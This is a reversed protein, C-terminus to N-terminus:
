EEMPISRCVKQSDSLPKKTSQMKAINQFSSSPLNAKDQETGHKEVNSRALSKSWVTADLGECKEKKFIICSKKQYQKDFVFSEDCDMAYIDGKIGMGMM